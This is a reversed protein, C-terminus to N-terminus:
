KKKCHEHKKILRNVEENIMNKIKNEDYNLIRYKKKAIQIRQYCTACVKEGNYSKKYSLKDKKCINCFIKIKKLIPQCTKKRCRKSTLRDWDKIDKPKISIEKGYKKMSFCGCEQCIYYKIIDKNEM